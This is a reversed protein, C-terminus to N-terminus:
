LICPIFSSVFLKIIFTTVIHLLREFTADLIPQMQKWNEYM